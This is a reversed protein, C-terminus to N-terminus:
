RVSSAKKGVAWYAQASPPLTALVREFTVLDVNKRLAAAVAEIANDTAFNHQRRVSRVDELMEERSGFEAIPQDIDWNEVFLARLVLPLADAFALAQKVSLRRRFTHFVGVVMNWAMNTTPLGAFDRADVMFQDFQLSANQYEFPLPM